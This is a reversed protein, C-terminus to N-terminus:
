LNFYNKQNFEIQERENTTISVPFSIIESYGGGNSTHHSTRDRGIVNWETGTNPIQPALSITKLSTHFPAVSPSTAVGNIYLTGNYVSSSTFSSHFLNTSPRSHWYFYTYDGLLFGDSGTISGFKNVVIVQANVAISAGSVDMHNYVTSSPVAYFAIFPQGNSRVLTGAMVIKPQYISTIQTLNKGNGSQDYWIRVYGDNAGIFSLLTATDLNGNADFGIDRTAGDNSRRVQICYGTYNKSLKRVSVAISPTQSVADLVYNGSPVSQLIYPTGAVQAHALGFYLLSAIIIKKMIFLNFDQQWICM